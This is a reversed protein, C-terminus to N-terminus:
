AFSWIFSRRNNTRFFIMLLAIWNIQYRIYNWESASFPNKKEVEFLLHFIRIKNSNEINKYKQEYQSVSFYKNKLFIVNRLCLNWILILEFIHFFVTVNYRPQIFGQKKVPSVQWGWSTLKGSNRSWWRRINYPIRLFFISSKPGPILKVSTKPYM